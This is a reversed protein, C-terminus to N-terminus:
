DHPTITTHKDDFLVKIATDHNQLEVVDKWVGPEAQVSVTTNGAGDLTARLHTEATAEPQAGLLSDLLATVDLVDGEGGNFDTIVDAVDLQDLATGDFVFTDAGASGSMVVQGMGGHLTLGEPEAGFITDFGVEVFNAISGDDFTFEGEAFIKQGDETNGSQNTTLSISAVGKDSLSSLEGEDSVGNNNADVWIKLDKFAADGGDIKGDANSDLSALAAVGSAFKGGNFDPTFIESGNDITSNGDVDYALIGDDKTWAIQDKHGDANIDFTVGNDLSSFAFGNKDLDLIIPDSGVIVTDDDNDRFTFTQGAATIIVSDTVKPTNADLLTYALRWDSGSGNINVWVQLDDGARELDVYNKITKGNAISGILSNLDIVDKDSYSYDTIEDSNLWNAAEDGWKFTDAGSGGTLTDWGSGGVLIDAGGRGDLTDSGNEGILVDGAAGGTLNDDYDHGELYSGVYSDGAPIEFDRGSNTYTDIVKVTVTGTATGGNGDSVTYTFTNGSIDDSGSFDPTRFSITKDTANISVSIPQLATSGNNLGSLVTVSQIALIEGEPDRDNGLFVSWPMVVTSADSVYIVDSGATPKQNNTVVTETSLSTVREDFGQIDRYTVRVSIKKGVDAATLAYTASNSGVSDGNRLWQYVVGSKAGDPDHGLDARLVDGVKPATATQTANTITISAAGDNVPAVTVNVSATAPASGDENGDDLSVGFSGTPSTESGNHQFKVNGDILQKGTFSTAAVNNVLVTGNTSGTVTFTVGTAVDDVDQFGLDTSTIVVSAGENVAIARDGTITPADNAGNITISVLQETGGVTKVTFTDSLTKGAPLANVTANDNNLTYTWHGTADISFTGYQNATTGGAAVAIWADNPNDVDTANLDGSVVLGSPRNAHVVINDIGLSEDAVSQDLTDGFGLTVTNGFGSGTLVVHYVKPNVPTIAYTGTIGNVSFSGNLSGGIAFEFAKGNDLYVQLKEGGDWTNIALFDFEIVTPVNGAPVSLVKSISQTNSRNESETLYQGFSAFLNNYEGSYTALVGNTWGNVSGSSSFNENYTEVKGGVADETVTGIFDGSIVAADNVGKITITATATSTAGHIDKITYTFTDTVTQGQALQQLQTSRSPDYTITGDNNLTVAAGRTSNSVSTVAISDGDLDGDNATLLSTSFRQVTDETISGNNGSWEAVYGSTNGSISAADNWLPTQYLPGAWRNLAIYDENGGWNNPEGPNWPLYSAVVSGAEPGTVWKFTGETEADSGGLWLMQGQVGLNNLVFSQEAANTLTLLYAGQAQNAAGAVADAWSVNAASVFKYYHGNAANLVWGTGAPAADGGFHLVDNNAGPNDNVPAVTITATASSTAIAGANDIASYSFTVEGNFNPYPKFYVTAGTTQSNSWLIQTMAADQYLVGNSPLTNIRYSAVTGDVDSGSLAIAILTDENGSVAVANTMPPDNVATVNVKLSYSQDSFATGDGVKFGITAYDAGNANLAPVFQLKGAIIDNVSVEQDLSVNTWGSMGQFQLTGNSPLATIKVAALSQGADEDKFTGFDNITLPTATDELITISDNTSTPLDNRNNVNLTFTQTADPTGGVTTDNVQVSVSYSAKAEYNVQTGVFYLANGVIRFSAADDGALSLQNTGLADDTVTIDAVKIGDSGVVINEDIASVVNSFGVATPAENVDTVNITFKEDIYGLRSDTVRITVDITKETEYDISAGAAVTIAGTTANITFRGDPSTQSVGSNTVFAYTLPDIEGNADTGKVSGVSAGEGSNEAITLGTTDIDSPKQQILQQATVTGNEFTFSEIGGAKVVTGNPLNLIFQGNDDKTVTVAQWRVNSFKLSDTGGADGIQVTSGVFNSLDITDNGVGGNIVITSPAIASGAVSNLVVTDGASGLNFTVREIEDARVSGGAYSVLIDKSAADGIETGGSALGLTFTRATADGGVVLEDYDPHTTGTETGGDVIDDGDGVTYLIRDNGAGGEIVDNGAGGVLTDNGERGRITDNGAGGWIQDNGEGGDLDDNGGLGSIWDNGMGGIIKDAQADSGQLIDNGEGGDIEIFVADSTTYSKPLLIIDDRDTGTFREIGSLGLSSNARDFVFGKDPSAPVFSVTDIGTGGSLSDGEGSRGALSIPLVDGNGLTFGRPGFAAADDIDASVILMDDGAGGELVDNGRGGSLVDNGDGGRLTDNGDDGQLFDDGKGGELIDDGGKGVMVDWGDGGSLINAANNGVVIDHGSGGAANVIGTGLADIGILNNGTRDTATRGMVEQGFIDTETQDLNVFVGTSVNGYSISSGDITGAADVKVTFPVSIVDRDGDTAVATFGLTLFHDNGNPETHDLPQLLTFSYSGTAADLSLTFVRNAAVAADKGAIYGILVGNITTFAVAQSNSYLTGVTNGRADLISPNGNLVLTKAPGNDANWNVLARGEISRNGDEFVEGNINSAASPTSDTVTIKLQNSLALTDGDGDRVTVASSLDLTLSTRGDIASVIPTSGRVIETGDPANNGNIRLETGNALQGVNVYVTQNAGINLAPFDDDWDHRKDISWSVARDYTNTVRIIVDGNDLRGMIQFSDGAVRDVAVIEDKKDLSSAPYGKGDLVVKQVHDIPGVQTFTYEGTVANVSFTFVPVEGARATMVNGIATFTLPIGNSTLSTLSTSLNRTEVTYANTAHAGDAGFSVLSSLFGKVEPTAPNGDAVLLENATGTLVASTAVPVDDVIRIGFNGSIQDGDGDTVVYRVSIDLTNEGNDAQGHALTNNLLTFRYTGDAAVSITWSNDGATLTRTGENWNANDASLAFSKVGDSGFSVNLDGTTSLPERPLSDNGGVLDDENLTRGTTADGDQRPTDDNVFINLTGSKVDGDGDTVTYRIPLTADEERTGPTQHAIPADLDLVYSGDTRIVLTAAGNPFYTANTAKFAVTGNAGVTGSGWTVTVVEAFGQANKFIVDFSSKEITISKVGDSGASFLTGRGGWVEDVSPTVDNPGFYNPSSVGWQAEDDLVWAANVVSPATPTDDNVNINLTGSKADGDGDTVTYGFSLLKDDEGAGSHAVPAKLQFNYSGDPRIVLVAAGDRYNASTATFIVSGDGAVRGSGWTVSETEAFGQRNEYVVQFAPGNITISSVGDAGARFLTGEDGSVVSYSPWPDSPEGGPNGIAIAGQGEDDLRYAANVSTPVTPIDDIVKVTFSGDATDGDSDTATFRFTLTLQNEGEGAKHDLPKVLTFSYSGKPDADSVTAYFVVRDSSISSPVSNGTYGILTGNSLIATKVAEGLSTITSGYADAVAVTATSFVVSRDGPQGNADNAKDSGWNIDLSGGTRHTTVDPNQATDRDDTGENDENGRGSVERQEEEVIGGVPTGITLIDDVVKVQFTSSATDGDSDRATFNFTLTLENEGNGAAHDLPKVLTFNYSGNTSTDSLSAYFVVNAPVPNVSFSAPAAGTYGVLVGNILTTQVAQGLSTLSSTYGGSVQVNADTFFVARDGKGGSGNNANDAGWSIGLSRDVVSALLGDSENNGGNVAEDEVKGVEPSTIIPSDDIVGVAFTTTIKDGDGDRATATFNLSLVDENAAGSAKVPHDLVGKLEFDYSGNNQDSLKVIFVTPGEVSGARATLVTGNGSISYYLTQGASTLSALPVETSGSYVKLFTAVQGEFIVSRDGAIQTGNFGGDSYRNGDDGGWSINLSAGTVRDTVPGGNAQSADAEVKGETEKNGNAFVEEEVYRTAVPGAVPVDDVLKVSFSAPQTVDGDSDTATYKFSLTLTDEGQVSGKHDVTNFLTFTYQGNGSDSLAVSFVIGAQAPNSPLAHPENGIYALLTQQGNITLIKYSLGVGDSTLGLAKLESRVTDAFQVSRDGPQGNGDNANDAGWSIGLGGTAVNTTVNPDANTDADINDSPTQGNATTDENGSGVVAEHEEEVVGAPPTITAVDDRVNVTFTDRAKDGDSDTATFNFTLSLENEGRGAAHDLPKVLNFTYSGRDSADSLTVYFVVNAPLAQANFSAPAANQGGTYAVLVGDVVATYVRQGLSTLNDGYDGAVYVNANTFAVSRDGKGGSGNNGDDAGWYIALSGTASKSLGDNENNGNNVAEDEVTVRETYDIVPSDDIVNVQFGQRVVDGDGDRATFTFNFSLVDEDWSSDGKVPHDLVGSLNFNYSGNNADSLTVTFVVTEGAKATLVSGNNSLSYVLSQGESTLSALPVLTNGSYVKLFASADAASIQTAAVSNSTAFVVSRDGAVQTGTFGGNVNRNGDDGGWAINLSAGIANTIWTGNAAVGDWEVGLPSADENGNPLAEEEVYRPGAGQATPADDIIKVGFSAPASVDGDADTATFQFNLTLTDEGQVSGKHDLTNYLNFVYKGAAADSLSVTFVIGSAIGSTQDAPLATPETGTYAILTPQGGVTVVTYKLLVGDSTLAQNRLADIGAATFQVSRDGFLSGNNSNTNSNTNSNADDAGWSIALTGEARHTTGNDSNRTDQDLGGLSGGDENGAGAVQWQEEEVVGGQFPQGILPQDDSIIVAATASKASDGDADTGQFAFSLKISDSGVNHDLEQFIELTYSGNKSTPDLVIQFVNVRVPEGKSVDMYYATLTQGGNALNVVEFSLERGGSSFNGGEISLGVAAANTTTIESVQASATVPKKDEGATTTTGFFRVTRGFEDGKTEGRINDDAGWAIGLSVPSTKTVDDPQTADTQEYASVDDESLTPIAGVEGQVPEDDRIRVSAVGAAASDGDADTGQYKFFIQLANKGVSHDLERFIEVTYSGNKATPDLVIEFVKARPESGDIYATLTQGGNALDSVVYYLSKGGSTFTGGRISLGVAEPRYYTNAAVQNGNFAPPADENREPKGAAFFKVTRGFEDGKTEGRINDDAGWSIGLSVADTKRVDRNPTADTLDYNSVDDENLSPRRGPEGQVPQDDRIRVSAEGAAASDGDADTGQYKFSIRLADSGVTHDLERFIEVTYSGNKATPDLVIEFVKARPESGDIYATLTQGGNALDSVVYYLSKGGSTFTGGRISLGLAEPNAYSGAAVQSGVPLIRAEGEGESKTTGFFKVTRGFEDGKTEGRINDDAGWSIGLSVADTKRVDRNPTADTLPYQSVDDENLTPREGPKGQVPADDAIVVSATAAAASDGDSDTGQFGFSLRISDSGKDHDLPQFLEVKYSGNAATPDLTIKFVDVRDLQEGKGPVEYFAIISQGGNALDIVRFSLTHGASSFSGGSIQLGLRGPDQYTGSAVQGQVALGPAAESGSTVAAGFFRVTRGFVDGETEGRINNDAGWRIGLSGTTSPDEGETTDTAPYKSVDDESIPNAAGVEGQVPADDVVNIVFNSTVSDGDSDTARYGFTLSLTNEQSGAAHDLPKVLTFTYSGSAADSLTVFFVVNGATAATPVASGTYGVLTGNALLVTSVAEGMSSLGTGFAGTVGVTASTFAVSRDGLLGDNNNDAGWNVNLSGTAVASLGTGENENNGGVLAEDEVTGTAGQSVTPADDAIDIAFNGTVTDGDRDAITVNFTLRLLDNIGSQGVGPNDVPGSLTFTFFGEVVNTVTLTFITVGNAAGTLTLGDASATIVVPVGASTLAINAGAVNTAETVDAAAVFGISRITGFDSGQSFVIRGNVTQNNPNADVLVTESLSFNGQVGFLPRGDIFGAAGGVAADEQDTGDLLASFGFQEVGNSIAQDDFDRSNGPTSQATFTGDPGAAVNINSGELAAFLAVQPLEVDGIVFTPINAAGGVVVIQTGDDLVLVLNEGDVQFELNDLEIGAPLTVVNQANPTVESPITASATQVPPQAPLRDTRGAEPTQAQAVEVGDVEDRGFGLQDEMASYLDDAASTNDINSLRPDEISM